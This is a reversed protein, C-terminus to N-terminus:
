TIHGMTWELLSITFEAMPFDSQMPKRLPGSAIGQKCTRSFKNSILRKSFCDKVSMFYAMGDRSTSVYHIDAKWLMNIHVPKTIDRKEKRNKHKGYPLALNHNRMIRRVIKMNVHIRFNRMLVWIRRYGYSIREEAIRLIQDGIEKTIRPKRKGTHDSRAYCITSRQIDMASSIRAIPMEPKLINVIM